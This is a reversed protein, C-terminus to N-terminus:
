MINNNRLIRDNVYRLIGAYMYEPIGLGFHRFNELDQRTIINMNKNSLDFYNTM